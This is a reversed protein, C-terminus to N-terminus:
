AEGPSRARRGVNRELSFRLVGDHDEAWKIECEDPLEMVREPTVLIDAGGRDLQVMLAASYLSAERSLDTNANRLVTNETAVNRLQQGMNCFLKLLVHLGDTQNLQKNFFLTLREVIDNDITEPIDIM